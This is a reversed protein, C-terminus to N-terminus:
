NELPPDRYPKSWLSCRTKVHAGGGFATADETLSIRLLVFMYKCGRSEIRGRSSQSIKGCVSSRKCYGDLPLIIFGQISHGQVVITTSSYWCTFPGLLSRVKEYGKQVVDTGIILFKIGAWWSGLWTSSGVTPIKDLQDLIHASALIRWVSGGSVNPSNSLKLISVLTVVAIVGTMCYAAGSIYDSLQLQMPLNHLPNAM